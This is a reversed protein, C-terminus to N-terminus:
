KHAIQRPSREGSPLCEGSVRLSVLFGSDITFLTSVEALCKPLLSVLVVPSQLYAGLEAKPRAQGREM